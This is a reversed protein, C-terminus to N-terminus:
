SVSMVDTVDRLEDHLADLQSVLSIISWPVRGFPSNISISNPFHGMIVGLNEDRLWQVDTMTMHCSSHDYAARANGYYVGAQLITKVTM